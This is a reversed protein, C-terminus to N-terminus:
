LGHNAFVHQFFLTATEPATAKTTTPIFRGMKTLRDVVVLIADHGRPTQPLQVIFDMSVSDWPKAPIELPRLLGAQGLNSPKNRQCAACSSVYARTEERLKPWY